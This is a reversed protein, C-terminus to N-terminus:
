KVSVEFCASNKLVFMRLFVKESQFTEKWHLSGFGEQIPTAESSDRKPSSDNQLAKAIASECLLLGGPSQIPIESFLAACSSHIEGQWSSSKAVSVTQLSLEDEEGKYSSHQFGM